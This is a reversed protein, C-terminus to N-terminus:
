DELESVKAPAATPAETEVETIVPDKFQSAGQVALEKMKETARKAQFNRAVEKILALRDVKTTGDEAVPNVEPKETRTAPKKRGNPTQLPFDLYTVEKSDHPRVGNEKESGMEIVAAMHEKYRPDDKAANRDVAVPKYWAPAIIRGQQRLTVNKGLAVRDQYKVMYRILHRAKPESEPHDPFCLRGVEATLDEFRYGEKTNNLVELAIVQKDGRKKDDTGSASM